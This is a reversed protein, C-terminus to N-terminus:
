KNEADSTVVYGKTVEELNRAMEQLVNSSADLNRATQVQEEVTANLEQIGASIQQAASTISDVDRNLLEMASAQQEVAGAINTTNANIEETVSMIVSLASKAKDALHQSEIV